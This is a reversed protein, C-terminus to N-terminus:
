NNLIAGLYPGSKYNQLIGEEHTVLDYSPLNLYKTAQNVHNNYVHANVLSYSVKGAIKDTKIAMERLMLAGVILDYPLGLFVDSSRFSIDLNLVTGEETLVYTLGTYCCPLTQHVLDCPNWMTIHARRSGKNIQHEAHKIQDFKGNYHRLQYGYSYEVQDNDNAYNDWWYIDHEHLYELHDGGDWMWKFEHYAKKYFVKKGTLLPMLGSKLDFELNYNFLTYAPVGTRNPELTGKYLISKLLFRYDEELINRM